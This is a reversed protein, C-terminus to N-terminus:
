LPLKGERRRDQAPHRRRQGALRLAPCPNTREALFGIITESLEGVLAFSKQTTVDTPDRTRALTPPFACRM